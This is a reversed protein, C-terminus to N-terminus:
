LVSILHGGDEGTVRAMVALTLAWLLLMCAFLAAHGSSM